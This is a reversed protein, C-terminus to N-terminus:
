SLSSKCDDPCRFVNASDHRPGVQVSEWDILIQKVSYVLEFNPEPFEDAFGDVVPPVVSIIRYTRM